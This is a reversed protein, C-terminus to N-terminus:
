RIRKLMNRRSLYFGTSALGVYWYINNQPYDLILGTTLLRYFWRSTKM